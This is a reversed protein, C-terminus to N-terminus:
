SKLIRVFAKRLEKDVVFGDIQHKNRELISKVFRPICDRELTQKSQVQAAVFMKSHLAKSAGSSEKQMVAEIEKLVDPTTCVWKPADDKLFRSHIDLAQKLMTDRNIAVALKEAREEDFVRAFADAALYFLLNEACHQAQLCRLFARLMDKDSLLAELGLRSGCMLEHSGIMSFGSSNGGLRLHKAEQNPNKSSEDIIVSINSQPYESQHQNKRTFQTPVSQRRDCDLNDVVPSTRAKPFNYLRSDSQMQHVAPKGSTSFDPTALDDPVYVQVLGFSGQNM